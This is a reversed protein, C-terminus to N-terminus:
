SLAMAGKARRVLKDLVEDLCGPSHALAQISPPVPVDLGTARLHRELQVLGECHVGLWGGREGLHELLGAGKAIPHDPGVLLDGRHFRGEVLGGAAHGSPDKESLVFLGRRGAVAVPEPHPPEFYTSVLNALAKLGPPSEAPPGAHNLGAFDLLGDLLATGFRKPGCRRGLPDQARAPDGREEPRELPLKGTQDGVRLSSLRPLNLEDTIRQRDPLGRTGDDWLSKEVGLMAVFVRGMEGRLTKGYSGLGVVDKNM